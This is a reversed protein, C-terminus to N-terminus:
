HSNWIIDNFYNIKRIFFDTIIKLRIVAAIRHQLTNDEFACSGFRNIFLTSASSLICYLNRGPFFIATKVPLELMKIHFSIWDYKGPSLTM